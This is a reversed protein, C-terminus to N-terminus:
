QKEKVMELLNRLVGFVVPGIFIGAPGFLGVGGILGVLIFFPHIDADGDVALPRLLNDSGGVVVLGYVVLFGASLLDGQFALYVAAPFWILASGIMPIFGLLVMMFTWFFANPVGVLFLGLGALLGQAVAILVHGKVVAWVSRYTSRYLMEQREDTVFDFERTWDVFRQGDRLAYFQLFLMVSVGITVDAAVGLASSLGEPLVSAVKKLAYGAREEVDVSRGTLDNVVSDLRDLVEGRDANLGSVLDAADDGAAGLVVTFPLIAAFITLLVVLLAAWRDGLRGSVREFVPRTVFALLLGGLLYSILSSIMLFCLFGVIVSSVLLFLREREFGGIRGDGSM